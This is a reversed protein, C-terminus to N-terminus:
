NKKWVGQGVRIYGSDNIAQLIDMPPQYTFAIFVFNRTKIAGILKKYEDEMGWWFWTDQGERNEAQAYYLTTPLDALIPENSSNMSRVMKAPYSPDNQNILFVPSQFSWYASYLPAYWSHYYQKYDWLNSLLILITLLSISAIISRASPKIIQRYFSFAQSLLVAILIAIGYLAPYTYGDNQNWSIPYIMQAFWPVILLLVEIHGRIFRFCKGTTIIAITSLVLPYWLIHGVQDSTRSWAAQIAPYWFYLNWEYTRDLYGSLPDATAQFTSMKTTYAMWTAAPLIAALLYLILFLWLKKDQFGRQRIIKYWLWALAPIFLIATYKIFIAIGLFLSSLILWKSNQKREALLLTLFSSLGFTVMPSDLSVQRSIFVIGPIIAALFISVLGIKVGYLERAIFYLVLLSVMASILMPLRSVWEAYGFLQFSFYIFWSTFPSPGFRQSLSSGGVWSYNYLNFLGFHEFNRAISTYYVENWMHYGIYPRNIDLLRFLFGLILALLINIKNHSTFIDILKKYFSDYKPHEEGDSYPIVFVNQLNNIM